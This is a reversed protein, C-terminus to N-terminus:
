GNAYHTLANLLRGYCEEWTKEGRIYPTMELYLTRMIVNPIMSARTVSTCTDIFLQADGASEAVGSFYTDYASMTSGIIASKLVPLGVHLDGAGTESQEHGGQIEESLLICLLRYANLKNQSSRLIAAYSLVEATMGGDVDYIPFLCPTEGKSRTNQLESLVVVPNSGTSSLFVNKMTSDTQKENAGVTQGNGSRFARCVDLVTHLEEERVTVRGTEYDIFQMGSAYLLARLDDGNEGTSFLMDDPNEEHYRICASCFDEFTQIIGSPEEEGAESLYEQYRRVADPMVTEPIAELSTQYLPIQIEIPVLQREGNLVGCNMVEGLYQDFGFGADNEFYPDLDEFLRVTMTRYPDPTDRSLCFLLDPGKGASLETSIRVDFEDESLRVYNVDVDPYEARFIDVAPSLVAELTECGYVTLAGTDAPMVFDSGNSETFGDESPLPDTWFNRTWLAALEEPTSESQQKEWNPVAQRLVEATKDYIFRNAIIDRYVAKVDRRNLGDASLGNTEFFAAATNYEKIELAAAFAASGFVAILALCAAAISRRFRRTKEGHAKVSLLDEKTRQDKELAFVAAEEIHRDGIQHIIASVKEKKM